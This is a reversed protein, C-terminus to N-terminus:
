KPRAKRIEEIDVELADAMKRMLKPIMELIELDPSPADFHMSYGSGKDGDIVLVGALKAHVTKRVLTALDDYKGPGVPM